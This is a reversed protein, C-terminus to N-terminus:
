RVGPKTPDPCQPPRPMGSDQAIPGLNTKAASYAGLLALVFLTSRLLKKM